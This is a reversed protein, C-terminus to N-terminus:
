IPLLARVLPNIRDPNWIPDWVVKVTTKKVGSISNMEEKIQEIISAGYPCGTSTLTMTVTANGKKIEITYILGLDVLGIGIEPDIINNLRSWYPETRQERPTPLIKKSM